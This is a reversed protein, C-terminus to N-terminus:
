VESQWLGRKAARAKEEAKRYLCDDYHSIKYPDPKKYRAMGSEIMAQNVDKGNAHVVGTLESPKPEKFGWNSPNVVVRVNSNLALKRLYLSSATRLKSDKPAQIGALHVTIRQNSSLSVIVRDGDLVRVLKAEVVDWVMCEKLPNGCPDNEFDPFPGALPSAKEQARVGFAAIPLILLFGLVSKLRM